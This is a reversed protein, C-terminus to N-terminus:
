STVVPNADKQDGAAEVVPKPTADPENTPTSAPLPKVASPVFSKGRFDVTKNWTEKDGTKSTISSPASPNLGRAFQNPLVRGPPHGFTCDARTCASGFRCMVPSSHYTKPKFKAPAHFYPCNPRTCNPDFKCQISSLPSPAASAPAFTGPPTAKPANKAAKSVHAKICDKDKCDLGKECPETSLVVGSELTAVPSPHSYRCQPNTCNTVFKCLTPSLPRSPVALASSSAPIPKPAEITPTPTAIQATSTSNSSNAADAPNPKSLPQKPPAGNANRRRDHQFPPNPGPFQNPPMMNPPPVGLPNHVLGLQIAMQGFQQIAMMTAELGPPFVGGMMAPNFGQQQMMAMTAPDVGNPFNAAMQPHMSPPNGPQQQTVSRIRDQVHDSGNPPARPGVRDLLSSRTNRQPPPGTASSEERMARPRDPLDALRRKAVHGTPSPSRQSSTRKQGPSASSSNPAQSSLSSLAQQHLPRSATSLPRSPLNQSPVRDSPPPSTRRQDTPASKNTSNASSQPHLNPNNKESFLWDTFTSDYDGILETLEATVQEPTKDNILMITIYEALVTDDEASYGKVSLEKQISAQLAVTHDPGMAFDSSM